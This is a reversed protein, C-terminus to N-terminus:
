RIMTGLYMSLVMGVIDLIRFIIKKRYMRQDKSNLYKLVPEVAVNGTILSRIVATEDASLLETKSNSDSM